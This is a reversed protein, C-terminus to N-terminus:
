SKEGWETKCKLLTLYSVQKNDRILLFWHQQGACHKQALMLSQLVALDAESWNYLSMGPM